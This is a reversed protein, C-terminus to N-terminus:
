RYGRRSEPAGTNGEQTRQQGQVRGGQAGITSMQVGRTDGQAWCQM